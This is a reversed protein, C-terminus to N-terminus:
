IIFGKQAISGGLVVNGQGFPESFLTVDFDILRLALNWM